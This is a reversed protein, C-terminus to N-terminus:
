NVPGSNRDNCQNAKEYEEAKKHAKEIYDLHGPRFPTKIWQTVMRIYASDMDSIDLDVGNIACTWVPSNNNLWVSGKALGLINICDWAVGHPGTKFYDYYTPGDDAQTIMQEYQNVMQLLWTNDRAMKVISRADAASLALPKECLVPLGTPCCTLIDRIHSETPTAIIFGDIADSGPFPDAIDVPIADHNLWNLIRCYRQGMNGRGGIVAFKM